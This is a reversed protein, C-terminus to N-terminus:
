FIIITIKGNKTKLSYLALLSYSVALHHNRIEKIRKDNLIKELHYVTKGYNNLDLYTQAM